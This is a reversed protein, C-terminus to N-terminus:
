SKSLGLPIVSTDDLYCIYTIWFNRATMFNAEEKTTRNKKENFYITLNLNHFRFNLFMNDDDKNAMKVVCLVTIKKKKFELFVGLNVLFVLFYSLKFTSDSM